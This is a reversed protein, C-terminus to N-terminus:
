AFFHATKLRFSCQTIENQSLARSYIRIDDLNGKFHDIINNISLTTGGISLPLTTQITNTYGFYNNAVETGNLYLRMNRNDYVGIFNYWVDTNLSDTSIKAFYWDSQQRTAGFRLYGQYVDLNWVFNGSAVTGNWVFERENTLTDLRVWASVTFSSNYNFSFSPTEVIIYNDIGNFNYAQNSQGFRDQTLVAGNIIGNNLNGSEDNANGNFPYYAVLGSDIDAKLPNIILLVLFSCLLIIKKM